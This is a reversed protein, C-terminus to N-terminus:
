RTLLKSRLCSAEVQPLVETLLIQTFNSLNRLALEKDSWSGWGRRIVEFDGYGLPMVVIMPKAKGQAILNDLIINARGVESWGNAADSFGHLLYLVPYQAKARPDYGPPTYVYFDSDLGNIKSHYRHHHVEGHPVDTITWPLSPDPIEVASQTFLLNPKMFQNAPDILPVGDSVISYGYIDPPFPGVTTSWVGQDDKQMEVPDRQGEITVAVKQANPARFRFTVHGDSQVEPSKPPAQAIAAFSLVSSIALVALINNM